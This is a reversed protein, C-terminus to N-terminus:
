FVLEQSYDETAMEYLEYESQSVYRYRMFFSIIQYSDIVWDVVNTIFRHMVLSPFVITAIFSLLFM